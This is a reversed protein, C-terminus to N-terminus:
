TFECEAKAGLNESDSWKRIEFGERSHFVSDLVQNYDKNM